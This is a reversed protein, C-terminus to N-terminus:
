WHQSNVLYEYINRINLLIRKKKTKKRSCKIDGM